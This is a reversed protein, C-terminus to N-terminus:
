FHWDAAAIRVKGHTTFYMLIHCNGDNLLFMTNEM